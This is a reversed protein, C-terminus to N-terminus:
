ELEFEAAESDTESTRKRLMPRAYLVAAISLTIVSLFGLAYWYLPPVDALLPSAGLTSAIGSVAKSTKTATSKKTSIKTSAAPAAADSAAPKVIKASPADSGPNPAGPIWSVGNLHLSNGDGAAGMAAAYTASDVAVLTKDKLAFSGGTNLLSFPSKFLAGAQAPLGTYAPYDALFKQADATIIASEGAVLTSTGQVLTLNHNVGSEFLKYGALDVSSSGKNTIEIWERGTDAGPADYMIETFRVQALASTPLVCIFFLAAASILNRSNTTWVKM